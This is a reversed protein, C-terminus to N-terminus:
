NALRAGSIARGGFVGEPNFDSNLLVREKLDLLEEGTNWDVVRSRLDANAPAPLLPPLGGLPACLFRGDLVLLSGDPSFRIPSTCAPLTALVALSKLDQVVGRGDAELSALLRWDPSITIGSM